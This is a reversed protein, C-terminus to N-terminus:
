KRVPEVRVAKLEIRTRPTEGDRPTADIADVASMGDVVRGFSTYQGDPTASIKQLVEIADSVHGVVTYQTDLAPQDALVVFFQSGASDPKGPITVAARRESLCPV